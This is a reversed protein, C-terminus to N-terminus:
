IRPTQCIHIIRSITFIIFGYIMPILSVRYGAFIVNTSLDGEHRIIDDLAMYIGIMHSLIGLALAIIGIDRVWSPAKWAALFLLALLLTLISMFSMGGEIFLESLYAIM